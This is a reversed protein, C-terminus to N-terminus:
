DSILYLSWTEWEGGETKWQWEGAPPTKGDISTFFWEFLIPSNRSEVTNIPRLPIIDVVSVLATLTFVDTETTRGTNDTAEACWQMQGAPFTGGTIVVYAILNGSARTMAVDTWEGSTGARWHFVASAITFPTPVQGTTELGVQFQMDATRSFNGSTQSNVPYVQSVADYRATFSVSSSWAGVVGFDNTVRVRWYITGGPFTLKPATWTQASGNITALNTWAANDTSYQLEAKTQGGYGSSMSWAFNVPLTGDVTTNKPATPTATSGQPKILTFSANATRGLEDSVDVRVTISSGTAGAAEFFGSMNESYSDEDINYFDWVVTSNYKFKINLTQGIRNGFSLAIENPYGPLASAIDYVTAPSPSVTLTPLTYTATVTVDSTIWMGWNNATYEIKFSLQETNVSLGSFSFTKPLQTEDQNIQVTTTAIPTYYWLPEEDAYVSCRLTFPKIVSPIDLIVSISCASVEATIPFRLLYGGSYTEGGSSYGLHASIPTTSKTEVGDNHLQYFVDPTKSINAM